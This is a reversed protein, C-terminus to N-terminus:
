SRPRVRFVGRSFSVFLDFEALFNIRGLIIPLDDSDSWLFIFPIPPFPRVIGTTRVARTAGASFRGGLNRGVPSTAWDFGLALGVRHPLVNVSAGTDVLGVTRITKTTQLIIPLLPAPEAASHL